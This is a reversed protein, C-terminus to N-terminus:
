CLTDLRIKVSTGQGVESEITIAHSLKTLIRKCLYLGIGTSKKDFRGNYGTYGKEFVRPLDENAIGIGTDKIVLVKTDSNELAISISGQHTYKLANSLIQEIVFLLWKEDTLVNCDIEEYTLRIKKQIFMKSYKRIAQKLIGDLPYEKLVYDTTISDLRLYQLVMEVYQEIKFLEVSLDTSHETPNAQLLLTMASIPTKIQHAWITFYDILDSKENDAESIQKNKEHYLIAILNQYDSEIIEKPIPLEEISISINHFQEVLLIHKQTYKWFDYLGILLGLCFCLLVSYGIPEFVLNYLSFVLAFIIAFLCLLLITKRHKKLYNILLKKKNLKTM